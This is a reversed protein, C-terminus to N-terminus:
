VTSPSFLSFISSAGVVFGKSNMEPKPTVSSSNSFCTTSRSGPVAKSKSNLCRSHEVKVTGDELDVAMEVVLVDELAGDNGQLVFVSVMEVSAHEGDGVVLHFHVEVVRQSALGEVELSAHEFFTLCCVLLYLVEDVEETALSAAAASAVVASAAAVVVMVVVFSAAAASVAM